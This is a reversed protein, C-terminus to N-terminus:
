INEIVPLKKELNSKKKSFTIEIYQSTLTCQFIIHLFEVKVDPLRICRPHLRCQRDTARRVGGALGLLVVGLTVIGSVKVVWQLIFNLLLNM